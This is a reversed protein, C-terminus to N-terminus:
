KDSLFTALDLIGDKVALEVDLNQRPDDKEQLLDQIAVFDKKRLKGEDLGELLLTSIDRIRKAYPLVPGVLPADEEIQLLREYITAWKELYEQLAVRDSENATEVYATVEREFPIVDVADPTCVDAFLTFPSYVQYQTGGSNRTYIKLPESIKMLDRLAGTDNYNAINRLLYERVQIHRIGLGELKTSIVRLRRHMDDLDKIDQASWFREAIAATRPWVRTDITLPTVLESWMTAEGGLIRAQEEETLEQEPMPDVLYHDEVSLMLDIYYGNSLITQYGNKVAKILSEGPDMGENVGRWSHILASKPMNPTMIEEWGMLKKGYKKLIKELRINFFTQLEHNDPIENEAMFRQIQSNEDWHKGENEDGGIHFYADPFLPTVEKFLTDLFVYVEENTPDLTPDFIGSNRELTYRLNLNSAYEPYATLIATAHGPVDFEPVVRIGREDAYMVIDRIQDQTYYMGDSAREHLNPLSKVEVRFGQDDSLHWHLVNLKVFAMADLNRKIVDVPMFHRSVDLMLGRWPFRPVDKISVRPFGYSGNQVSILQKLTSLGRLAGLDTPAKLSIKNSLIELEYSEDNELGLVAEEQIEIVLTADEADGSLPYGAKLFTGTKDTLYRLFRTSAKELRSGEDPFGAGARQIALTFDPGVTQFGENVEIEQPWPMLTLSNSVESDVSDEAIQSYVSGLTFFLLFLGSIIKSKM